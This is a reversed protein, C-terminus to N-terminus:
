QKLLLGIPKYATNHIRKMKNRIRNRHNPDPDPDQGFRSLFEFNQFKKAKEQFFSKTSKRQRM